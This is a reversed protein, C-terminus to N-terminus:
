GSSNSPGLSGLGGAKLNLVNVLGIFHVGKHDFSYWGDGQADKGFRERFMQGNDNLM